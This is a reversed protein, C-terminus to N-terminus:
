LTSRAGGSERHPSSPKELQEVRGQGRATARVGGSHGAADALHSTGHQRRREVTLRPRRPKLIKPAVEANVGTVARRSM